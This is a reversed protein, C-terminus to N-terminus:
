QQASAEAAERKKKKELKIRKRLLVNKDRRKDTKEKVMSNYLNKYKRPIMRERLKLEQRDIAKKENPDEKVPQGEKVGMKKKKEERLREIVQERDVNESTIPEKEENGGDENDSNDKTKREKNKKKRKNTPLLSSISETVFCGILFLYFLLFLNKLIKFSSDFINKEERLREIVQERDVNESTIPEKEENGGDENDSNDKTKREKNKKKRKNTPLLSSISQSRSEKLKEWRTKEERLREIVQERDVNESTIPEKEENGGDENDSNDKTKREKNKKKRKNTPLLSSISQSRSEKLKEWRTKEERLREIVQERDVNESTIPEKEENGGDENDSNDKTKREKNKKKRKNTPLLSSISETNGDTEMVIQEPPVYDDSKEHTEVFPSLHPPLRMGVFYRDEPLLERTNVSDFIWQPQVYYRSIYQKDIMPRDVIQHTITEDTENFTSGVMLSEDWSVEAGFCRLTFVIPERPVERNVFVKLGKFLTKLKKIKEAEIRAKELQEESEGTNFTDIECEEEEVPQAQTAKQLPINLAAVRECLSNERDMLNSDTDPDVFTVKPPYSLNLSHYLRYNVFGLLVLYFSTFTSMIKFDVDDKTTPAFCFHHPMIWTVTQGKIEAQFYYGKISIFVKRLWQGAIVAHMFEFSLRRCLLPQERPLPNVLPFSAYLFCMTLCDDLDRLASIFTPYREKVLHDLKMEPYSNLLRKMEKFEKLSHARGIKKGHTRQERIKWIIPEHMLFQIDKKHYLTKISTDGRQAKKRNRPERPYIGKLICLRRFDKLSLQLKKMATTRSWYETAEGAKFKKKRMGM